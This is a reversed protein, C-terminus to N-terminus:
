TLSNVWINKGRDVGQLNGAASKEAIYFGAEIRKLSANPFHKYNSRLSHM